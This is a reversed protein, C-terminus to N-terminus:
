LIPFRVFFTPIVPFYPVRYPADIRLTILFISIEWCEFYEHTNQPFSLNTGRPHSIKPTPRGCYRSKNAPVSQKTPGRKALSPKGHALM